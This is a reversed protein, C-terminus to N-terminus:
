GWGACSSSGCSAPIAPSRRPRIPRRAHGLRSHVRRHTGGIRRAALVGYYSRPAEALVQRYLPLAAARDRMQEIARARWYIAGIRYPGIAPARWWSRGRSPRTASIARSIPIGVSGGCRAAPWRAVRIARRWPRTRRSPRRCGTPRRSRAPGCGCRRPRTRRPHRRRWAGSCRSRGSAVPRRALASAGARAAAGDAARGAGRAIAMDLARSAAEYQGLKRAGDAVVRLARVVISPDHSEIAIREAEDSATKPVGGRLLREARDLRQRMTLAPVPTGGAALVALRDSAGDAWGTTPALVMLERYARVANDRQGRVEATQGLM